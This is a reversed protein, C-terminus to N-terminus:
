ESMVPVPKIVHGPSDSVISIVQTKPVFAAGQYAAAHIEM